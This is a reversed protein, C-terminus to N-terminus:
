GEVGLLAMAEAPTTFRLLGLETGEVLVDLKAVVAGWLAPRITVDSRLVFCLYPRVCADLHARALRWFVGADWPRALSMPRHRPRGRDRVRRAVRRWPPMLSDGDFSTTPIMWLNPGEFAPCETMPRMSSDPSPRYPERPAAAHDPIRGTAAAGRQATRAPRAGPEITLDYRVGLSRLVEVVRPSM